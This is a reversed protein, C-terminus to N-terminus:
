SASSLLRLIASPTFKWSDGLGYVKVLMSIKLALLITLRVTSANAPPELAQWVFWWREDVAATNTRSKVSRINGWMTVSEADCGFCFHDWQSWFAWKQENSGCGFSRNNHHCINPIYVNTQMYSHIGRLYWIKHFLSISLLAMFQPTHLWKARCLFSETHCVACPLLFRTSHVFMFISRVDYVRLLRFPPGWLAVLNDINRLIDGCVATVISLLVCLFFVVDLILALEWKHTSSYYACWDIKNKKESWIFFIKTPKIQKWCYIRFLQILNNNDLIKTRAAANLFELCAHMSVIPLWYSSMSLM